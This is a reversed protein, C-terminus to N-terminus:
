TEKKLRFINERREQAKKRAELFQDMLSKGAPQMTPVAPRHEVVPVATAPSVISLPESLPPTSVSAPRPPVSHENAFYHQGRRVDAFYEDAETTKEYFKAEGLTLVPAPCENAFYVSFIVDRYTYFERFVPLPPLLRLSPLDRIQTWAGVAWRLCDMTEKPGYKSLLDKAHGQERGTFVPVRINHTRRIESLWYLELARVSKELFRRGVIEGQRKDVYDFIAAIHDKGTM